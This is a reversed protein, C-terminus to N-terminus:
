CPKARCDDSDRGPQDSKSSHVAGQTTRGSRLSVLANESEIVAEAGRAPTVTDKISDTRTRGPTALGNDREGSGGERTARVASRPAGM